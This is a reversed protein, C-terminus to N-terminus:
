EKGGIFAYLSKGKNGKYKAYIRDVLPKVVIDRWEKYVNATGFEYPVAKFRLHLTEDDVLGYVGTDFLGDANKEVTYCYGNIICHYKSYGTMTQCYSSMLTIITELCMSTFIEMEPRLMVVLAAYMIYYPDAIKSDDLRWKLSEDIAKISPLLSDYDSPMQIVNPYAEASLLSRRKNEELLKHQLETGGIIDVGDNYAPSLLGACVPVFKAGSIDLTIGKEKCEALARELRSICTKDIYKTGVKDTLKMVAAM